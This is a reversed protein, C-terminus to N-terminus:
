ETSNGSQERTRQEIHTPTEPTTPNSHYGHQLEVSYDCAGSSPYILTRFMNLAYSTFYYCWTVDLQDKTKLYTAAITIKIYIKISKQFCNEQADTPLLFVKIIDPHATCIHFIKL